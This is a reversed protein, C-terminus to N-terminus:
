VSGSGGSSAGLWCRSVPHDLALEESVNFDIAVEPITLDGRRAVTVVDRKFESPFKKPMVVDKRRPRTGCFCIDVLLQPLGSSEVRRLFGHSGLGCVMHGAVSRGIILAGRDNGKDWVDRMCCTAPM